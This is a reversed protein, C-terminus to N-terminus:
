TSLKRASTLAAQRGRRQWALSINGNAVSIAKMINGAGRGRCRWAVGAISSEGLSRHGNEGFMKAATESLSVGSGSGLKSNKLAIALRWGGGSIAM